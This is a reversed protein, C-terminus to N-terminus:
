KIKKRSKGNKSKNSKNSKKLKNKRTKKHTKKRSGGSPNKLTILARAASDVIDVTQVNSSASKTDLGTLIEQDARNNIVDINNELNTGEGGQTKLIEVIAADDNDPNLIIQYKRKDDDTYQKTKLYELIQTITDSNVFGQNVVNRKIATNIRGIFQTYRPSEREVGKKKIFEDLLYQTLKINEPNNLNENAVLIYLSYALKNQLEGIFSSALTMITDDPNANNYDNIFVLIKYLVITQVITLIYAARNSEVIANVLIIIKVLEPIPIQKKVLVEACGSIETTEYVTKLFRSSVDIPPNLEGRCEPWNILTNIFKQLKERPGEKEGRSSSVETLSYNYLNVLADGIFPMKLGNYIDDAMASPIPQKLARISYEQIWQPINLSPIDEPKFQNLAKVMAHSEPLYKRLNVEIHHIPVAVSALLKLNAENSQLDQVYIERLPELYEIIMKETQANIWASPVTTNSGGYNKQIYNRIPGVNKYIKKLFGKLVDVKINGDDDFLNTDGKIAAGNCYAHSWAYEKEMRRKFEVSEDSFSETWYLGGLILFAQMVPLIHECQPLINKSLGGKNKNADMIFKIRNANKGSDIYDDIFEQSHPTGDDKLFIPTGCIWCRCGETNCEGIINSCQTTATSLEFLDRTDHPRAGVTKLIQVLNDGYVKSIFEGRSISALGPTKFLTM